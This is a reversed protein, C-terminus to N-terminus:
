HGILVFSRYYLRGSPVMPQSKQQSHDEPKAAFFMKVLDEDM